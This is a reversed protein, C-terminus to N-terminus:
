TTSSKWYVKQVQTKTEAEMKHDVKSLDNLVGLHFTWLMVFEQEQIRGDNLVKSISMEFVSLATTVTNVLKAVKALKKQYKKTLM